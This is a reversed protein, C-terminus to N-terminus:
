SRLVRAVFAAKSETYAERDGRHRAAAARKLAVYEATLGPDARLRDRFALFAAFRPGDPWLVHLHALRRARTDDTRVFLRRETPADLEPTVLFWSRTALVTVHAECWGPPDPVRVALDVVPKAPVGPVATSGVHEVVGVAAGALEDDLEAAFAAALDRWRPDPDVLRVEETAWAPWSRRDHPDDASNDM